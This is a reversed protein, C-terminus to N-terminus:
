AEGGHSGWRRYEALAIGLAVLLAGVFHYLHFAEGLLLIALIVGFISPLNM